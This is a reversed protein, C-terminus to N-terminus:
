CSIMHGNCSSRDNKPTVYQMSRLYSDASVIRQARQLDVVFMLQPAEAGAAAFVHESFNTLADHTIPALKKRAATIESSSQRFIDKPMTFTDQTARAGRFLFM